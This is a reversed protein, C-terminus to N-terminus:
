PAPLSDLLARAEKQRYTGYEGAAFPALASKAEQTRGARLLAVGRNYRAELGLPGGSKLYRDWLGVARPYDHDVFHADHAARYLADADPAPRSASAAAASAATSRPLSPAIAASTAPPAVPTPAPEPANGADVDAASPPLPLQPVPTTAARADPASAAGEEHGDGVGLVAMVRGLSGTAGALATLVLLTAALPWALLRVMRAKPPKRQAALVRELTAANAEGRTEERLARTAEDLLEGKM